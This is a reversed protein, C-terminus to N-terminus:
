LYSDGRKSIRLLVNRDGSSQQKPVLGLWSSLQRGNKFEIGNGITGVIAMGNVFWYWTIYSYTLKSCM